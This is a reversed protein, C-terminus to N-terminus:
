FRLALMLLYNRGAQPYYYNQRYEASGGRYGYTYGNSSYNVDFINNALVSLSIEKM